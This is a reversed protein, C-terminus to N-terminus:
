PVPSDVTITLGLPATTTMIRQGQIPCITVWFVYFDLFTLVPGPICVSLAMDALTAAKACLSCPYKHSVSASFRSRIKRSMCGLLGSPMISGNGDSIGLNTLTTVVSSWVECTQQQNGFFFLFCTSLFIVSDFWHWTYNRRALQVLWTLWALDAIQCHPYRGLSSQMPWDRWCKSRRQNKITLLGFMTLIIMWVETVVESKGHQLM